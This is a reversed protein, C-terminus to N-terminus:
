GFWALSVKLPRGSSSISVIPWATAYIQLQALFYALTQHPNQLADRVPCHCWCHSSGRWPQPAPLPLSVLPVHQVAISPALPPPAHPRPLPFGHCESPHRLDSPPTPSRPISEQCRMPFWHWCHLRPPPLRCRCHFRHILHLTFYVISQQRNVTNITSSAGGKGEGGGRGRSRKRCFSGGFIQM